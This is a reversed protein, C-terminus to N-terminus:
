NPATTVTALLKCLQYWTIICTALSQLLSAKPSVCGLDDEGEEETCRPHCPQGRDITTADAIGGRQM